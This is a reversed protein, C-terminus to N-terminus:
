LGIDRRIFEVVGFCGCPRCSLFNPSQTLPYRIRPHAACLPLATHRPRGGRAADIHSPGDTAGPAPSPPTPAGPSAPRAPGNSYHLAKYPRYSVRDFTVSERAALAPALFEPLEVWPPLQFTPARHDPVLQGSPDAIALTRGGHPTSGYQEIFGGYRVYLPGNQWRLDSLIHPGPQGDLIVGLGELVVRLQAEDAPYITALKGSGARDAYKMNRLFFIQRGLLYKFPLRKVVCYDWVHELVEDVNGLHASVHIRWGQAQMECQDPVLVVWESNESRRWGQPVPRRSIRFDRGGPGSKEAAMRKPTEYLLPDAASYADYRVDM